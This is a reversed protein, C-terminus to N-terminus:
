ITGSGARIVKAPDMFYFWNSKQMMGDILYEPPKIDYKAPFENGPIIRPIKTGSEEIAKRRSEVVEPEPAPLGAEKANNAAAELADVKEVFHKVFNVRDDM